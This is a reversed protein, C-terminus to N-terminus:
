FPCITQGCSEQMLIEVKKGFIDALWTSEAVFRSITMVPLVTKYQDRAFSPRPGQGLTSGKGPTLYWNYTKSSAFFHTKHMGFFVVKGLLLTSWAPM